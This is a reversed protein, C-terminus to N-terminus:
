EVISDLDGCFTGFYDIENEGFGLNKLMLEEYRQRNNTRTMEPGDIVLAVLTDLYKRKPDEKKLHPHFSVKQHKGISLLFSIGGESVRRVLYLNHTGINMNPRGSILQDIKKVSDKRPTYFYANTGMNKLQEKLKFRKTNELQKPPNM